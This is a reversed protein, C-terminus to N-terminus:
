ELTTFLENLKDEAAKAAEEVSTNKLIIDQFMGEIVRQSVLLGAEACPGNEMGIATGTGVANGIVALANQFKQTMPDSLFQENTAIEKLAPLMGVPVSLLFPVYREPAYLYQIFAKCIEPHQSNKWVVMPINSTEYGRQEEGKTITPMPACDIVDLLAPTNTQVGGIQFGSNFDFANKGQYYLTAQDLVNFNISDAPSVEKYMRVWYNIGDIAAKSTLNAKHDATLLTEGASRVYFNLYRTAMMDNMGLPVSCGFVEESNIKKAAEYVEDWTTPVELGAKELLDKRYWMVQAHSYLPLAYCKGDVSMETLPAEYFRERGMGDILDDLPIVADADIMEVVHNPLATSMDPVNGSALGTTWKTYFDAWSFTEITIKVGPNAAMFDAASKQISELRPGQTFSHWFTIEGELPAAEAAAVGCAAFLSVLMMLSLALSVLKKM